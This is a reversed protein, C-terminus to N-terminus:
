ARPHESVQSPADHPCTACRRFTERGSFLAYFQQQGQQDLAATISRHQYLWAGRRISLKERQVANGVAKETIGHTQRFLSLPTLTGPLQKKARTKTTRKTRKSATPGPPPIAATANSTPSIPTPPREQTTAPTPTLQLESRLTTLHTEMQELSSVLHHELDHRLDAMATQTEVTLQEFRENIRQELTAFGETMAALISTTLADGPHEPDPLQLEIERKHAMQVLQDETLYKQRPDALDRQKATDIGDEDIWKAFTKANTHLFGICQTFNYRRSM